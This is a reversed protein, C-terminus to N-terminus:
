HQDAVTLPQPPTKPKKGSRRHPAARSATAHRVTVRHPSGGGKQATPSGLARVYAVTEAPLPKGRREHALWAEPGANYAALVHSPGVRQALDHLYATGALINDRPNFPDSGLGYEARMAEYTRPMLQMLGRAGERSVARVEGRSERQIVARILAPSVDFRAAAEEIYPGWPDNAPGPAPYGEVM